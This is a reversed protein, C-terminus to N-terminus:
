LNSLTEFESIKSKRRNICLRICHANELGEPANDVIGKTFMAWMDNHEGAYASVGPFKKYAISLGATEELLYNLSIDKFDNWDVHPENRKRARIWKDAIAQDLNDHFQLNHNYLYRSKQLAEFFNPDEIFEKWSIFDTGSQFYKSNRAFWAKGQKSSFLFADEMNACTKNILYNHRHLVDGVIVIIRNFHRYLWEAIAETKPGMSQESDLSVEFRVQKYVCWDFGARGRIKYNNKPMLHNEICSM